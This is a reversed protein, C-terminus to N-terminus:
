AQLSAEFEATLRDFEIEKQLYEKVFPHEMHSDKLQTLYRNAVEEPKGMHQALVIMNILTDPNNSDKELSDQLVAEAEEYKQQLILSTAKGNLLMTTASYKEIMEQFIYFAEQYKEKGTALNVWALALQTLTADDDREQMLKVEKTALDLRDMKLYIQVSLASCEINESEHLVRLANDVNNEHFYITAAIIKFNHTKPTVDAVSKDIESLIKGRKDPYAFYEALLKLPLIEPPANDKIEDLVIRFKRQAIYARYFFVDREVELDPSSVKVKQAENICQQYNGIYFNNKVDFLEDVDNQQRAM